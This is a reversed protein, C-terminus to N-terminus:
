YSGAGINIGTAARMALPQNEFREKAVFNGWAAAGTIVIGVACWLLALWFESVVLQAVACFLPVAVGALRSGYWRAPRLGIFLGGGYFAVGALLNTVIPLIMRWDLPMAVHGPVAIWSIAGVVPIGIAGVYVMLGAIAKALLLRSRSVPRHTLFAWKDARNEPLTQALGIIVAVFASLVATSGYIWRLLADPDGGDSRLVYALLAGTVILGLAGWGVVQCLEKWIAAKL